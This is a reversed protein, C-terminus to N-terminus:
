YYPEYQPKSRATASNIEAAYGRPLRLLFLVVGKATAIQTDSLDGWLITKDSAWEYYRAMKLWVEDRQHVVIKTIQTRILDCNRM